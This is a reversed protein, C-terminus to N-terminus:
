RILPTGNLSLLINILFVLAVLGIVVRAVKNFPEPLGVYGIFWWVLWFILGAIVLAILLSVLTSSAIMAIGELIPM